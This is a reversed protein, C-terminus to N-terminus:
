SNRIEVYIDNSTTTKTQWNDGSNVYCTSCPFHDCGSLGAGPDGRPYMWHIGEQTNPDRVVSVDFTNFEPHQSDCHFCVEGWVIHDYERPAGDRHARFNGRWGRGRDWEPGYGDMSFEVDQRPEVRVDGIGNTGDTNPTFDIWRVQDSRNRFILKDGAVNSVLVLSALALTVINNIFSPM